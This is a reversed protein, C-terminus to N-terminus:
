SVLLLNVVIDNADDRVDESVVSLMEDVCKKITPIVRGDNDKSMRLKILRVEHKGNSYQFQFPENHMDCYKVSEHIMGQFLQLDLDIENVVRKGRQLADPSISSLAPFQYPHTPTTSIPSPTIPMPPTPIPENFPDDACKRKLGVSMKTAAPQTNIMLVWDSVASLDEMRPEDFSRLKITLDVALNLKAWRMQKNIRPPEDDESNIATNSPPTEGPAVAGVRLVFMM